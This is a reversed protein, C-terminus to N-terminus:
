ASAKPERLRFDPAPSSTVRAVYAIFHEENIAVKRM